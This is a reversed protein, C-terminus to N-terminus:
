ESEFHKLDSMSISELIKWIEKPLTITQSEPNYNNEVIATIARSIPLATGNLTHYYQRKGEKNAYTMNMRFSQWDTCISASALERYKGQNPFWVELDKQLTAPSGMEGSSKTVVRYPVNFTDWIKMTNEVLESHLKRDMKVNGYKNFVFQEVKHFQHVRFLGKTERGAASAEKRFCPSWASIKIPLDDETVERKKYLLGLLSHESTGILNLDEGEIKYVMEEFIEKDIAGWLVDGTIMYPPIIAEFENKKMKSMAWLSLSLDLFALENFMYNFRSGAVRGGQFSDLINLKDELIETHSSLEEEIIEYPVDFGTTQDKFFDLHGRWVRVTENNYYEPKDKETISRPVDSFLLNPIKKSMQQYKQELKKYTGVIEDLEAKFNKAEDIKREKSLRNIKTRAIVYKDKSLIYENRAELLNDVVDVSKGRFEIMKKYDNPNELLYEIVSWTPM